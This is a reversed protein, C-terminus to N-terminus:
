QALSPSAVSAVSIDVPLKVGNHTRVVDLMGQWATAFAHGVETPSSEPSFDGKGAIWFPPDGDVGAAGYVDSVDDYITGVNHTHAYIGPRYRGDALVERTWARYYDRMRPPMADMYEVDLFVVTGRPFGERTTTAIADRADISGQDTNVFSASCHGDNSTVVPITSTRKMTRTAFHRKGSKTSAVRVKKTTTVPKYSQGWTQQGVYIVALGWGNKLLKSRTGVWSDDSHCPASLYYGVWEYEGSRKWADMARDGPYVNTDFGMHKGTVSAAVKTVAGAIGSPVGAIEASAISLPAHMLRPAELAGSVAALAILVYSRIDRRNM